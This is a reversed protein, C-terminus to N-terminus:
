IVTSEIEDIIKDVLKPDIDLGLELKFKGRRRREKGDKKASTEQAEQKSNKEQKMGEDLSGRSIM